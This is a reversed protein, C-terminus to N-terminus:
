FCCKDYVTLPPPLLPSPSFLLSFLVCSSSCLFYFCLAVSFARACVCVCLPVFSSPWHTATFMAENHFRMWFAAQGKLKVYLFTRSVSPLACSVLKKDRVCLVAFLWIIHIFDIFVTFVFNQRYILSIFLVVMRAKMETYFRGSRGEMVVRPKLTIYSRDKACHGLTRESWRCEHMQSNLVSTLSAGLLCWGSLVESCLTWCLDALNGKRTYM